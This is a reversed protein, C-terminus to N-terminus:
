LGGIWSTRPIGERKKQGGVKRGSKKGLSVPKPYHVLIYLDITM